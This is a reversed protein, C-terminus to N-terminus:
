FDHADSWSEILEERGLRRAQAKVKVVQLYPEVFEPAQPQDFGDVRGERSEKEGGLYDSVGM